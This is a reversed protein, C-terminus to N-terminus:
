PRLEAHAPLADAEDRHTSGSLCMSVYLIRAAQPRKRHGQQSLMPIGCSACLTALESQMRRGCGGPACPAAPRACRSAPALLLAARLRTESRSGCGGRMRQVRRQVCGGATSHLSVAKRALLEKHM